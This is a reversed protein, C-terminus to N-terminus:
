PHGGLLYDPAEDSEFWEALQWSTAGLLKLPLPRRPTSRCRWVPRAAMAHVVTQQGDEFTVGLELLGHSRADPGIIM